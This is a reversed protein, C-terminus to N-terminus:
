RYAIDEPVKKPNSQAPIYEECPEGDEDIMMHSGGENAFAIDIQEMISDKCWAFAKKEREVICFWKFRFDNSTHLISKEDKELIDDLTKFRANSSYEELVKDCEEQVEEKTYEINSDNIHSSLTQVIEDFPILEEHNLITEYISLYRIKNTKSLFRKKSLEIFREVLTGLDEEQNLKGLALFYEPYKNILALEKRSFYLNVGQVEKFDEEM